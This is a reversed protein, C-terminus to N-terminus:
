FTTIVSSDNATNLSSLGCEPLKEFFRRLLTVKQGLFTRFIYLSMNRPLWSAMIWGPFARQIEQTCQCGFVFHIPYM